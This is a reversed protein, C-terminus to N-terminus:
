WRRRNRQIIVVRKKKGGPRVHCAFWTVWMKLLCFVTRAPKMGQLTHLIMHADLHCGKRRYKNTGSKYRHCSHPRCWPQNTPRRWYCLLFQDEPGDTNKGTFINQGLGSFKRSEDSLYEQKLIAVTEKLWFIIRTCCMKRWKWVTRVHSHVHEHDHHHHGGIQKLTANNDADCGCTACM